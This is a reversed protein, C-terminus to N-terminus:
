IDLCTWNSLFDNPSAGTLPLLEYFRRRWKRKCEAIAIDWDSETLLFKRQRLVLGIFYDRRAFAGLIRMGPRPDRSRIDFIGDTPPELIGIFATDAGRPKMSIVINDGGTFSDLEAHLQGARIESGTLYEWISGSVCILRAIKTAPHFPHARFLRGDSLSQEILSDMSMYTLM